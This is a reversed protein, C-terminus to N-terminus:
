TLEFTKPAGWTNVSLEWFDGLEKSKEEKLADVQMLKGLEWSRMWSRM